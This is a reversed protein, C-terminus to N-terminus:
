NTKICYQISVLHLSCIKKVFYSSLHKSKKQCIEMSKFIKLPIKLRNKQHLESINVAQIIKMLNELVQWLKNELAWPAIIDLLWM